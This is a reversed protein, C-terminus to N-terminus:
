GLLDFLPPFTMLMSLLVLCIAARGIVGAKAHNRGRWRRHLAVWVMLWIGVAVTSKGSLDGVPNYFTMATKVHKSLEVLDVLLGFSFCGVSAALIAAWAAGNTMTDPTDPTDTNSRM